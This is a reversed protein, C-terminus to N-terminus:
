PQAGRRSARQAGPQAVAGGGGQGVRGALVAKLGELGALAAEEQTLEKQAPASSALAAAEAAKAKEEARAVVMLEPQRRVFEDCFALVRRDVVRQNCVGLNEEMKWSAVSELNNKGIAIPKGTATNPSIQMTSVRAGNVRISVIRSQGNACNADYSGVCHHMAQGEDSLEKATTLVVGELDGESWSVAVAPWEAGAMEPSTEQARAQRRAEEARLHAEHWREQQRMLGTWTPKEPLAAFFGEQNKIYDRLLGLKRLFEHAGAFGPEQRRCEVLGEILAGAIAGAKKDAIKTEDVWQRLIQPTWWRQIDNKKWLGNAEPWNISAVLLQNLSEKNHGGAALLMESEHEPRATWAANAAIRAEKSANNLAMNQAHMNPFGERALYDNEAQDAAKSIWDSLFAVHANDRKRMQEEDVALWQAILGIAEVKEADAGREAAAKMLVALAKAPREAIEREIGDLEEKAWESDSLSASVNKAAKQTETARWKQAARLTKAQQALLEACSKAVFPNAVALRWAAPSWGGENLLAKKAEGVLAIGTPATLGFASAAAIALEGVAGEARAQKVVVRMAAEQEKATEKNKSLDGRKRAPTWNALAQELGASAPVNALSQSFRLRVAEQLEGLAGQSAEGWFGGALAPLLNEFGVLEREVKEAQGISLLWSGKAPINSGGPSQGLALAVPPANASDATDSMLWGMARGVSEAMKKVATPSGKFTEPAQAQFDPDRMAVALAYFVLERAGTMKFSRSSLEVQANAWDRDQQLSEVWDLASTKGGLAAPLALPLVSGEQGWAELDGLSVGWEFLREAGRAMMENQGQIAAPDSLRALREPFGDESFMFGVALLFERLAEPPSKLPKEARAM